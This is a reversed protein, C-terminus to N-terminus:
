RETVQRIIEHLGDIHLKWSFFAEAHQRMHERLLLYEQSEKRYAMLTDRIGDHIANTDADKFTWRTDLTALVEPIAGVPTGLVPTGSAWAELTILGFGELARTPLVFWDAARYFDPLLQDDVFGAFRIHDESRAERVLRKLRTEEPGKGVVTLHIDPMEQRLRIVASILRDVGMRPELNRVTLLHVRGKPLLCREKVTNRSVAPTFRDLDVGGPIVRFRQMSLRHETAALKAIYRSLTVVVDARLLCCKEVWGRARAAIFIGPTMPNPKASLYELRIPSLLVYIMPVRRFQKRFVLSACTFPQHAVICSVRRDAPLQRFLADPMVAVRHFFRVPNDVPAGYSASVIKGYRTVKGSSSDNDRSLSFVGIGREAMGFAQQWLVQEAGSTRNLPVDALFVLLGSDTDYDNPKMLPKPM